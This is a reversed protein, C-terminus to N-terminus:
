RGGVAVEVAFPDVPEVRRMAEDVAVQTEGVLQELEFREVEDEEEADEVV